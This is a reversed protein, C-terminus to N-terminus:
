AAGDFVGAQESVKGSMAAGWTLISPFMRILQAAAGRSHDNMALWAFVCSARLRPAFQRKWARAYNPGAAAGDGLLHQALLWSSQMAMSIGEAIIPHAEGAVNGAFFRGDQYGSRIGPRIPGSALMPNEVTADRLARRAGASSALIHRLVAEGARGGQVERLKRLADRRICCSLTVSGGDSHVMGGYGGPFALLPMVGPALAAGRFRGKFAFLDSPRSPATIAFPGRTNWSGCAVIV